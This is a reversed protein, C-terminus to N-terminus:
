IAGVWSAKMPLSVVIVIIPTMTPKRKPSLPIAVRKLRMLLTIVSAVVWSEWSLATEVKTRRTIAIIKIIFILIIEARTTPAITPATNFRM